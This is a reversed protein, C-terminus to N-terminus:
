GRPEEILARIRRRVAVDTSTSLPALVPRLAARDMHPALQELSDLAALVVAADSERGLMEAVMRLAVDPHLHRAALLAEERVVPYADGAAHQTLLSLTHHVSGPMAARFVDGLADQRWLSQSLVVECVGIALSLHNASEPPIRVAGLWQALELTETDVVHGGEVLKDLRETRENFAARDV